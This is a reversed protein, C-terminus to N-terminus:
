LIVFTKIYIGLCVSCDVWEDPNKQTDHYWKWNTARICNGPLACYSKPRICRVDFELHPTLYVQHNTLSELNGKIKLRTYFKFDSQNRRVGSLLFRLESMGAFPYSSRNFSM